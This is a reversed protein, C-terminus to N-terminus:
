RAGGGKRGGAARRRAVDDVAYYKFMGYPFDHPAVNRVWGQELGYVVPHHLFVWPCEERVVDEMARCVEARAPNDPLERFREYLRDFTANAYNARNAGPSANPGYFLQLFNEADPYDAVWSLIFTQARRQELKRFFTPRNNFSPELVVGVRAYFDALVEATERTEPDAGGLELTLTLRRGTAPDRGGPYGAEALLAAARGLDYPFQSPREVYGRIGPPLPGSAPVVRGKQFRVWREVDFASALAQRLPRNRGLLPDDMNFGLYAVELGPASHLRIGRAVLDDALRGPAAFVADWNDKSIGSSELAGSLFLLWQTSADSVVYQVIRDVFPV